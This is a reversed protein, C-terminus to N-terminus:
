SSPMSLWKIIKISSFKKQDDIRNSFFWQINDDDDFEFWNWNDDDYFIYDSGVCVGKQTQYKPQKVESVVRHQNHQKYIVVMMMM